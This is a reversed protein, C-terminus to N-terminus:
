MLARMSSCSADIADSVSNDWNGLGRPGHIAGAGDVSSKTGDLGFVNRLVESKEAHKISIRDKVNGKRAFAKGFRSDLAYVVQAPMFYVLANWTLEFLSLVPYDLHLLLKHVAFAIAIAITFTFLSPWSTFSTLISSQTEPPIYSMVITLLICLCLYCCTEDAGLLYFPTQENSAPRQCNICTWRQLESKHRLVREFLGGEPENKENFMTMAAIM